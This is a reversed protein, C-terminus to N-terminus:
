NFDKLSIYCDVLELSQWVVDKSESVLDGRGLTIHPIFDLDYDFGVSACYRQAELVNETNLLAVTVDAREWYVVDKVYGQSPFFRMLENFSLKKTAKTDGFSLTVHKNDLAPLDSKSLAAIYVKLM